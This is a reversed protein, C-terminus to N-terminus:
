IYDKLPVTQFPVVYYNVTVIHVKNMKKRTYVAEVYDRYVKNVLERKVKLVAEKNRLLDGLWRILKDLDEGKKVIARVPITCRSEQVEKYIIYEM